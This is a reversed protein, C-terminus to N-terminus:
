LLLVPSFVVAASPARRYRDRISVGLLKNHDDFDLLPAVGILLHHLLEADGLTVDGRRYGVRVAEADRIENHFCRTRNRDRCTALHLDRIEVVRELDVERKLHLPLNILLDCFLPDAALGNALAEATRSPPM